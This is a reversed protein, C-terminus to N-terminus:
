GIGGRECRTLVTDMAYLERGIYEIAKDIEMSDSCTFIDVAAYRHEPWTHIALHSEAVIVAGSVGYPSFTHFTHTVITCKAIRAAELMIEQIKASDKLEDEECEYFDALVQTGLYAM